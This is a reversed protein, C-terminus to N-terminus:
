ARRRVGLRSRRRRQDLLRLPLVAASFILLSILTWGLPSRGGQTPQQLMALMGVILQALEQTVIWRATAVDGVVIAHELTWTRFGRLDTTPPRTHRVVDRDIMAERLSDLALVFGLAAITTWLIELWDAHIM